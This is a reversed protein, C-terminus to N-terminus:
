EWDEDTEGFPRERQIQRSRRLTLLWSLASVAGTVVVIAVVLLREDRAYVGFGELRSYIIVLVSAAVIGAFFQGALHHWTTSSGRLIWAFAAALPIGLVPIVVLAVLASGVLAVLGVLAGVSFSYVSAGGSITSAVALTLAIAAPFILMTFGGGILLNCLTLPLPAHSETM